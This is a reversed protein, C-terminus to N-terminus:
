RSVSSVLPATSLISGAFHTRSAPERSPPPLREDPPRWHLLACESATPEFDRGDAQAAHAQAEAVPRGLLLLVRDPQDACGELPADGEEVGGLGIAREDVLLHDALRQLGDAVLHHDGGLEAKLLATGPEALVTPGFADPGHRVRRQRAQPGVPDVKEVLVADVGVHGHLLDGPRHFLQDLLALHLM